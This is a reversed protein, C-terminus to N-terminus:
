RATGAEVMRQLSRSVIPGGLLMVVGGGLAGITAPYPVGEAQLIFATPLNVLLILAVHVMIVAAARGGLLDRRLPARIQGRGLVIAIVILLGVTFVTTGLGIALPTRVDVGIALAVNLVALAWWFWDPLLSLRAVQDSRRGIEALARAAEDPNISENM